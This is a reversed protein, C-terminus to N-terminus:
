IIVVGLDVAPVAQDAWDASLSGSSMSGNGKPKEPFFLQLIQRIESM